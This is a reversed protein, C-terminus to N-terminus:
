EGSLGQLLSIPDVPYAILVQIQMLWKTNVLMKWIARCEPEVIRTQRDAQLRQASSRMVTDTVTETSAGPGVIGQDLDIARKYAGRFGM